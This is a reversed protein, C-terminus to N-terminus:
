VAHAEASIAKLLGILKRQHRVQSSDAGYKTILEPLNNSRVAIELVRHVAMEVEIKKFPKEVFDHVGLKIAKMLHARDKSSSIMVIPIDNGSSRMKIVFDIGSVEPMQIDTLIIDPTKEKLIEEAIKGNIATYINNFYKTFVDMLISMIEADDEVILISSEQIKM